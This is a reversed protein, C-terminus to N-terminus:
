HSQNEKIEEISAHGASLSTLEAVFNAARSKRVELKLSVRDSFDAELQRAAFRHILKTLQDFLSFDIEVKYCKTVFCKKIGAKEIVQRAADGYARALGGTGLKTGGFYRTVVVLTNTLNHGCIVNYIPAGATGSPEGDDSYKFQRNDPLGIRYAYCHHTAAHERKRILELAAKVEEASEVPVCESIFRSGKVKIEHQAPNGITFYVDDM